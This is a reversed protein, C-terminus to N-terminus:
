FELITLHIHAPSSINPYIGPRLTYFIYKGNSDTKVWGRIYGHQEAWGKEGGETAYIGQQNTHYIYLIVDNAPTIHDNQFITGTIKIKLESLSFDPLTDVSTLKRDGYEFIAECGECPGGVLQPSNQNQSTGCSSIM